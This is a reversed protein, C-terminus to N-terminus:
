TSSNGYCRVPFSDAFISLKDEGPSCNARSRAADAGDQHCGFRGPRPQIRAPGQIRPEHEFMAEARLIRKLRAGPIPLALGPFDYKRLVLNRDVLDGPQEIHSGDNGPQIIGPFLGPM